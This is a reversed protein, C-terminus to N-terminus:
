APDRVVGYLADAFRPDFALALHYCRVAEDLQNRAVLLVGLNCLAAPFSPAQELLKRYGQEAADLQGAQHQRVADAFASELGAPVNINAM